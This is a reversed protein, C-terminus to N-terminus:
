NVGVVVGYENITIIKQNGDIPDSIIIINNAPVPDYNAVEGSGKSFLIQSGSLGTSIRITDPLNVTFDSTGLYTNRFLTYSTTEFHIGYNSIVGSGETDGIMAKLQQQKLDSIFTDVSTSLSSKHKANLLNITSLGALIIFISMVLLTEIITFGAQLCLHKKKM